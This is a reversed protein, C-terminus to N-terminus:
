ETHDQKNANRSAETDIIRKVNQAITKDNLNEKIGENVKGLIRRVLAVYYDNNQNSM